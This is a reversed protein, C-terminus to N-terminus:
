DVQIRYTINQTPQNLFSVVVLTYTGPVVQALYLMSPKASSSNDVTLFDSEGCGASENRLQEPTCRGRVLGSDIDVSADQWDVSSAFSGSRTVSFIRVAQLALYSGGVTLTGEIRQPQLSPGTPNAGCGVGSILSFLLAGGFSFSVKLSHLSTKASGKTRGMRVKSLFLPFITRFKRNLVFTTMKM